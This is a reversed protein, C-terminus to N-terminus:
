AVAADFQVRGGRLRIIGVRAAELQEILAEDVTAVLADHSLAYSVLEDDPQGGGANELVIRGMDVLELALRAFGSERERRDALSVLEAYIPLIIVGEFGGVKELLDEEWSTPHEMVAILFSSDFLVKRPKGVKDRRLRDSAM